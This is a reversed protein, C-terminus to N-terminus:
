RAAPRPPTGALQANRVVQVLPQYARRGGRPGAYDWMGNCCHRDDEWGPHNLIPYLCVGGVRVGSREARGVEDIVSRLWPGRARDETGTESIVVPRGYRLALDRLMVHLPVRDPSDLPLTGGGEIWQNDPYYNAGPVDLYQPGGGLEPALRGALMDWAEYQAEHHAVAHERLHPQQPDGAINVLPEPHLFRAAPIEARVAQMARITARVLQRKLEDGRGTAFPNMVGVAGGAWTLFSIENMPAFWHPADIEERVARAVAAAYGAYRDPMDRSFVDLHDPWGFHALDWIVEVGARAAAAMRPREVDMEYRGPVAEVLHWRLSERATHIGLALMRRYDRDAFREHGTAAVLDLRRGDRRVHSSGEFGAIFYSRFLAPATM